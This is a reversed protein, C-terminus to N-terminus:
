VGVGPEAPAAAGGGRRHCAFCLVEPAGGSGSGPVVVFVKGGLRLRCRPCARAEDVAVRGGEAAARVVVARALAARRLAAEVQAARRRHGRERLLPALLPAAAALPMEPPLEALLELPDLSSGLAAVAHAADAWRPPAGGGPALVLRLLARHERPPVRAAAYAVAAGVDRLELVAVRLAAAHDGLAAAAVFREPALAGRALAAGVAAADWRRPAAELRARLRLRLALAADGAVSDADPPGGSVLAAASFAGGSAPAKASTPRPVGDEGGDEGGEGDRLRPAAELLADVLALVLETHVAEEETGEGAAAHELFRWRAESGRRLLPLAEARPLARAGLVSLAADPAADLLWPLAALADPAPCAAADRALAAAAAAAARRGDSSGDGPELEGVAIRRWLELAGAADGCAALLAALAVHWGAARLRPSLPAAAARNRAAALAAAEAAAGADVLLHLLLTDVAELDEAGELARARFLYEVVSQRAERLAACRAKAANAGVAPPASARGHAGAKAGSLRRELLAELDGLPEHLGWHPPPPRAALGAAHAPFLPLLEAPQLAAAGCRAAAAIAEAVRGEGLLLLAAQAAAEDAWPEGAAAAAAELAAAGAFDGRALLERARAAPPRPALAALGRAGAVVALGDAGGGGGAAAAFAGPAGAGGVALFQVVGGGASPDLVYAGGECVAIAFGAAAALAKVPPLGVLPLPAGVPEGRGDVLLGLGGVLVLALAPPLALVRPPPEDSGPAALLERAGGAGAVLVRAGAVVVVGAGAWALVDVGAGPALGLDVEWLLRLAAARGGAALLEHAALRAGGRRGAGRAAVALRLPAGGEPLGVAAALADKAVDRGEFTDWHLLRLTGDAALVALVAAAPAPLLAALAVRATVPKRAVLSAAIPADTTGASDEEVTPLTYEELMGDALGLFLRRAAADVAVATVAAGGRRDWSGGRVERADFVNREAGSM